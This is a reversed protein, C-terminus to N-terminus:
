INGLEKSVTGLANVVILVVDAKVVWLKEIEIRLDQYKM